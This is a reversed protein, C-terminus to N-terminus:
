ANSAEARHPLLKPTDPSPDLESKAMSNVSPLRSRPLRADEALNPNRCMVDDIDAIERRLSSGSPQEICPIGTPSMQGSLRFVEMANIVKHEDPLLDRDGTWSDDIAIMAAASTERAIAPPTSSSGPVVDTYQENM